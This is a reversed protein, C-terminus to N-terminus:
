TPNTINFSTIIWTKLLNGWISQDRVTKSLEYKSNCIKTIIDYHKLSKLSKKKM